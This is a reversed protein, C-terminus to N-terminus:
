ARPPPPEPARSPTVVADLIAHRPSRSIVLRTSSELIAPVLATACASMARCGVQDPNNCGTRGSDQCDGDHDSHPAGMGLATHAAHAQVPASASVCSSLVGGVSLRSLALAAVIGFLRRRM